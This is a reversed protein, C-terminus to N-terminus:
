EFVAINGVIKKLLAADACGIVTKAGDATHVLLLNDLSTSYMKFQGLRRSSYSGFYGYLGGCGGMTTLWQIDKPDLKEITLITSTLITVSDYRRLITIKAASVELRQPAYGECYLAIAVLLPVAIALGVVGGVVAGQVIAWILVAVIAVCLLYYITTVVWVARSWNFPLTYVVERAM